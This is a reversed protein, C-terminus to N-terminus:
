QRNAGNFIRDNQGDEKGAKNKNPLIESLPSIDTEDTVIDGQNLMEQFVERMVEANYGGLLKSCKKKLDKGDVCSDGSHCLERTAYLICARLRGKDTAPIGLSDAIKAATLYGIGPLNVLDFCRKEITKIDLTGLCEKIRGIQYDTLKFKYLRYLAQENEIITKIQKYIEVAQNSPIFDFSLLTNPSSKIKELCDPGLKDIIVQAKKSGIGKVKELIRIARNQESKYSTKVSNISIQWEERQLYNNFVKVPKGTIELEDGEGINFNIYGKATFITNVKNPDIHELIRCSIIYFNAKKFILKKVSIKLTKLNKEQNSESHENPNIM